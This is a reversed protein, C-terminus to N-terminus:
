TEVLILDDVHEVVLWGHYFSGVTVQVCPVGSYPGFMPLKVSVNSMVVIEFYVVLGFCLPIVICKIFDVPGTM